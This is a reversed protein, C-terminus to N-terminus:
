AMRISCREVIVPAAGHLAEGKRECSYAGLTARLPSRIPVRLMGKRGGGVGYGYRRPDSDARGGACKHTPHSSAAKLKAAPMWQTAIEKDATKVPPSADHDPGNRHPACIHAHPRSHGIRGSTGGGAGSPRSVAGLDCITLYQRRRRIPSITQGLM